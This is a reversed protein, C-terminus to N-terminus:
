KYIVISNVLMDHIAKSESNSTVTLLSVSGLFVKVIYRIVAYHFQINKTPDGGRKVRIGIIYHGVTGGFLSTFLPDYLLFIFVFASIKAPVSVIQLSDYINAVLFIMGVVVLMDTFVAKVREILGAYNQNVM